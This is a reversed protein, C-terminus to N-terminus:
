RLAAILTRNARDIVSNELSTLYIRTTLESTHGMGASIVSIPIRHNRANTAWTHRATYSSLHIDRGLLLSLRKLSNNYRSLASLYQAYATHPDESSIFPLLYPTDTQRQRYREIIERMRPEVKVTLQQGTKRRTYRIVSGRYDCKRLYAIDVFSMGRMGYSLIFIDRAMALKPEGGLDLGHMRVVTQESIALKRTRDVGTYVNRFPFTQEALNERVARNYVSRLIRMYFSASNRMIGRTRLWAEYSEVTRNDFAALFIDGGGLFRAFSSMTRTYNRATGMRNGTSLREIQSRMYGLITTRREPTRFATVVDQATYPRLSREFTGIIQRLLATDAAVAPIGRGEPSESGATPSEPAPM